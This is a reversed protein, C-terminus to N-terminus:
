KKDKLRKFEGIKLPTDPNDASLRKFLEEAIFREGSVLPIKNEREDTLFPIIEREDEKEGITGLILYLKEIKKM